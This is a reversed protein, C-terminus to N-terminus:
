LFKKEQALISKIQKIPRFNHTDTGKKRNSRFPLKKRLKKEPFMIRLRPIKRMKVKKLSSGQKRFLFEQM